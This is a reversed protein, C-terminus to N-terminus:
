KQYVTTFVKTRQHETLEAACYKFGHMLILKNIQIPRGLDQIQSPSPTQPKLTFGLQLCNISYIASINEIGNWNSISIGFM